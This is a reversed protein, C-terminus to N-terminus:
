CTACEGGKTGRVRCGRDDVKVAMDVNLVDPMEQTSRGQESGRRAKSARVVERRARMSCPQRLRFSTDASGPSLSCCLTPRLYKSSKSTPTDDSVILIDLPHVNGLLLCIPRPLHAATATRNLCAPSRNDRPASGLSMAQTHKCRSPAATSPRCSPRENGDGLWCAEPNERPISARKCERKCGRLCAPTSHM